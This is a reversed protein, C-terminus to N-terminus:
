KGDPRTIILHRFAWRNQIRYTNIGARKLIAVWEARKFGRKVSLPADHKVLYSKSFVRTLLKIAYHAFVNRELDNIVVYCGKTHATALFDVIDNESFHHFFLSAHLIHPTPHLVKRFDECVFKIHSAGLQISRATAYSICDEKLDAGTFTYRIKNKKLGSNLARLNDGGGCGIDLISIEFENLQSVVKKIGAISIAHGGLFKNIIELEYLNRYLDNRPITEADLLEKEYSRERFM